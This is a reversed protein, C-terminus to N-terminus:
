ISPLLFPTSKTTSGPVSQAKWGLGSDAIRMRGPLKSHNLYIREYESSM